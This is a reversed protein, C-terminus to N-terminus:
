AAALRAVGSAYAANIADIMERGLRARDTAPTANVAVSIHVVPAGNTAGASGSGAAAARRVMASSQGANHVWSGAPLDVLEPGREGVWTRGGAPGGAAKGPHGYVGNVPLAGTDWPTTRTKLVTMVETSVSAPIAKLDDIYGLLFVRLPSDPELWAVMGELATIQDQIGEASDVSHGQLTAFAAAATMAERSVAILALKSEDQLTAVDDGTTLYTQLSSLYSQWASDYDLQGSTLGQLDAFLGKVEDRYQGLAGAATLATAAGAGMGSTTAGQAGGADIYARQLDTLVDRTLGYKDAARAMAENGREAGSVWLEFMELTAKAASPDVKLIEGFTRKTRWTEDFQHRLRDVTSLANYAETELRSFPAVMDGTRGAAEEAAKAYAALPESLDRADAGFIGGFGARVVGSVKGIVDIAPKLAGVVDAALPVLEKLAPYLSTVLLEQLDGFAATAENAVKVGNMSGDAWAKQADTSKAMILRQTALAKAQALAAGTLREQGRAALETTVEAETISIGLEKLQEREGLMAKTLITAVDAATRSGGSWASLAGALDMLAVTQDTAQQTTFGMPKLLDAIGAAAGKAKTQTLGLAAANEKSWAEIRGVQDGFVTDVKAAMAELQVGARIIDDAMAVFAAGAAAAYLGANAKIDAMAKKSFQQFRGLSTTAGATSKQVAGDLKRFETVAQSADGKVIAMFTARATTSM